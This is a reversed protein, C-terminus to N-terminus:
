GFRGILADRLAPLGLPKGLKGGCKTDGVFARLDRPNVSAPLSIQEIKCQTVASDYAAKATQVKTM